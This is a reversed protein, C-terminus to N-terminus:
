PITNRVKWCSKALFSDLNLAGMKQWGALPPNCQSKVQEGREIWDVDWCVKNESNSRFSSNHHSHLCPTLKLPRILLRIWLPLSSSTPNTCVDNHTSCSNNYEYYRGATKIIHSWFPSTQLLSPRKVMNTIFRGLGVQFTVVIPITDRKGLSMQNRGQASGIM